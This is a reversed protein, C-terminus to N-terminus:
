KSASSTRYRRSALWLWPRLRAEYHHYARHRGTMEFRTCLASLHRRPGGNETELALTMDNGLLAKPEINALKSVLTVRFDFLTSLAETGTMKLFLLDDHPLPTTAEVLRPM